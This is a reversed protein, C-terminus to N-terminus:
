SKEALFKEEQRRRLEATSTRGFRVIASQMLPEEPQGIDLDYVDDQIIPSQDRNTQSVSPLSNSSSSDNTRRTKRTKNAKIEELRRKRNLEVQSESTAEIIGVREPDISEIEGSVNKKRNSQRKSM